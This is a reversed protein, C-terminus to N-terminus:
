LVYLEESETPHIGITHHLQTRSIGQKVAAALTQIIEAARDGVMHVGLVHDSADVVLKLLVKEDSDTMAHFLPQFENRYIQVEGQQRAEDETAGISAAEPRACVASPVWHYDVRYRQKGFLADVVAQGEAKAVPTLQLRNTCDGIAYINNQTTRSSDDVKIAGETVEVGAQELGLNELNPKRGIACLVLDADIADSGNDGSLTLHIKNGQRELAKVTTGGLIQIGRQELGRQVATRIDFDFGDLIKEKVDMLTVESGLGRLISGFEVGIYGGGLIAIRQPLQQLNFMDDSTVSLEIGPVDPRIPKGGVAILIKDATVRRDGVQLTHADLLQARDVSVEIGTERLTKLQSQSLRETYQRMAAAFTSWDFQSQCESWGFTTAADFQRPFDAAYVMLRKAVCGRNVCTGGIDKEEVIAVKVGYSVARKAAAVGGSGGGIILLDYDYPQQSNSM